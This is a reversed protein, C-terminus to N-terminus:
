AEAMNVNLADLIPHIDIALGDQQREGRAFHLGVVNMTEEDIWLAGSDGALSVDPGQRPVINMVNYILRDVGSYYKRSIGGVGSVLGRTVGTTRGSKIVKTGLQAWGVGKVPGVSGYQDNIIQRDNTLKAVAADLNSDMAHHSYIAVTDAENGGDGQGPQYIPLDGQAHWSGNLVHFNSLIMKAGTERDFVLGGLTGFIGRRADSISIGGQLPTVRRMRPGATQGWGIRWGWASQNLEYTGKPVDVYFGAISKQIMGRTVGREIAAKLAAESFKEKVHVRLRPPEKDLLEGGKRRWGFDVYTVNPDYIWQRAAEKIALRVQLWYKQDTSM